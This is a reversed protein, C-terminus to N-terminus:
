RISPLAPGSSRSRTREHIAASQCAVADLVGYSGMLEMFKPDIPSIGGLVIKLDPNVTRIASSALRVMEAFKRWDPDLHFDWHSLNNPENWLMVAEVM